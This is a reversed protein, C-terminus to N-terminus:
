FASLAPPNVVPAPPAPESSVDPLGQPIEVSVVTKEDIFFAMQGICQESEARLQQVRQKAIQMKAFEHQASTEVARAVAEQLAIYSQEGIRLLAKIQTLKENLCNLKVLDREKRADGVRQLVDQLIRQEAAVAEEGLSLKDKDSYRQAKDTEVKFGENPAAADGTQATASAAV